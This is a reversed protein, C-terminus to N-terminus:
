QGARTSANDTPGEVDLPGDVLGGFGRVIRDGGIPVLRVSKTEGPDFRVSAGSPLDLRRGYARPRDFHLRPNAEFVHFHATLHIPIPGANTIELEAVPLDANVVISTDPSIIEGPILPKM